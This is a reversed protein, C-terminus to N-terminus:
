RPRRGAGPSATAQKLRVGAQARAIERRGDPAEELERRLLDVPQLPAPIGREARRDEGHAAHVRAAAPGFPRLAELEPGGGQLEVGRAFRAEELHRPLGRHVAHRRVERVDAHVVVAEVVHARVPVQQAQHALPADALVTPLRAEVLQGELDAARHLGRAPRRESGVEAVDVREVPRMGEERVRDAGQPGQGQGMLEAVDEHRLPVPRHREEAPQQLVGLRCRAEVEVEPRSPVDVVHAPPDGVLRDEVDAVAGIAARAALLAERGERGPRAAQGPDDAAVGLLELEDGM